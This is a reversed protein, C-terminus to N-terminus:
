INATLALSKLTSEDGGSSADITADLWPLIVNNGDSTFAHLAFAMLLEQEVQAVLCSKGFPCFPLVNAEQLMSQWDDTAPNITLYGNSDVWGVGELAAYIARSMEESMCLIRETFFLPSLPKPWLEISAIEVGHSRLATMAIIARGTKNLDPNSFDKPMHAFLTPPFKLPDAAEEVELIGGGCNLVMAQTPLRDILATALSVGASHGWIALPLGGLMHEAMWEGVVAYLIASNFDYGEEADVTGVIVAYGRRLVELVVTRTEPLGFCQECNPGQDFYDFSNMSHGHTFLVIAKPHSPIQWVVDHGHRVEHIPDMLPDRQSCPLESGLEYAAEVSVDIWLLPSILLALASVVLTMSKAGVKLGM